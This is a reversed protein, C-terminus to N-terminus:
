KPAVGEGESGLICDATFRNILQQREQKTPRRGVPPKSYTEIVNERFLPIALRAAETGDDMSRLYDLVQDIPVGAERAEIAAVSFDAFSHCLTEQQQPTLISAASFLTVQFWM